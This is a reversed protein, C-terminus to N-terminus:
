VTVDAIGTFLGVQGLGAHCQARVMHWLLAKRASSPCMTAYGRCRVCQWVSVLFRAECAKFATFAALDGVIQQRNILNLSNCVAACQKLSNSWHVPDQQLTGFAGAKM